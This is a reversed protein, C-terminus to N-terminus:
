DKLVSIEYSGAPLAALYVRRGAITKEMTETKRGFALVSVKESFKLTLPAAAEVVYKGGGLGSVSSRARAAWWEAVGDTSLYAVDKEGALRLIEDVASLVAQRDNVFYTPHIFINDILAFRAATEAERAIRARDEENRLRPEYFVIKLEAVGYTRNGHEADDLIRTPYTTGFAYGYLNMANIDFLDTRIGIQRIVGKMGLEEYWRGTEGFGNYITWHTNAVSPTEGFTERYLSLQKELDEKGYRFAGNTVFDFHLSPEFGEKKLASFREKDLTFRRGEVPQFHAHYVVGRERMDRNATFLEEGCWDEDGAFHIAYDNVRGDTPPIQHILPQEGASWVINEILHLYLDSTPVLYDDSPDPIISDGSRMYGDGDIDEPVPRGQGKYWLTKLLSFTFTFVRGKGYKREFFVPTGQEKLIGRVVTGEGDAACNRIDGLIPLPYANMGGSLYIEDSALFHGNLSYESDARIRGVPRIGSLTETGLTGIGVLTGGAGVFSSLVDTEESYDGEGLFLVGDEPLNKGFVFKEATIGLLNFFEPFYADADNKESPIRNKKGHYLVKAM